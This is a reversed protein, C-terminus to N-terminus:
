ILIRERFSPLKAGHSLWGARRSDVERIVPSPTAPKSMAKVSAAHPEVVAVLDGPAFAVVLAPWLALAFRDGVGVGVGVATGVGAAPNLETPAMDVARM